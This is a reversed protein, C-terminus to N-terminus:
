NSAPIKLRTGPAVLDPDAIVDRNAEFIEKWRAGNGLTRSAVGWLSEGDLVEVVRVSAASGLDDEVPVFVLEGPVEMGENNHRLLVAKGEDGYLDRALSEWTAGAEPRAILMAPDVTPELGITTVLDWEPRMRVPAPESEPVDPPAGADAAKRDVSASLIGGTAPPGFPSPRLAIQGDEDGRVVLEPDRPRDPARPAIESRGHTADGGRRPTPRDDVRSDVGSDVPDAGEIGGSRLSWVFLLVIALLVSLVVTKETKGM